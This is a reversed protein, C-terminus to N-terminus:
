CRDGTHSLRIPMSDELQNIRQRENRENATERFQDNFRRETDNM